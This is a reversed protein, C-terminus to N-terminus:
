LKQILYSNDPDGPVVRLISSEETGSVGVLLAFSSAADLRLGQPAGAGFHCGTTACTPTFVNAQIQSFNPGLPGAPPLGTGDGGDCAPLFGTLFAITLVPRVPAPLSIKM